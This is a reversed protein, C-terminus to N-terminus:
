TEEERLLEDVTVGLVDAVRKVKEVGPEIDNWYYITNKGLDAKKELDTISIGRERCLSRIKTALM